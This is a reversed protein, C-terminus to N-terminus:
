EEAGRSELLTKFLELRAIAEEEDLREIAFGAHVVVFEGVVPRDILSFNVEYTVDNLSAQGFEPSSLASIKMPVALCM